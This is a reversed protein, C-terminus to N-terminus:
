MWQGEAKCTQALCGRVRRGANGQVSHLNRQASPDRRANVVGAQEIILIREHDHWPLQSPVPRCQSGHHGNGQITQSGLQIPSINTFTVQTPGSSHSHGAIVLPHPHNCLGLALGRCTGSPCLHSSDLGGQPPLVAGNAGQGVREPVDDIVNSLHIQLIQQFQLEIELRRQPSPHPRRPWLRAAPVSKLREQVM